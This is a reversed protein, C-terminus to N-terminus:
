KKKSDLYEQLFLAAAARDVLGKNRSPKRNLQQLKTTADVSSYREDVMEVPLGFRGVDLAFEKAHLASPGLDGNLNFPLGIVIREVEEDEIIKQLDVWLRERPQAALTSHPTALTGTLDSLAIGIRKRGWDLAMTRGM